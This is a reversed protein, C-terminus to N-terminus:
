ATKEIEALRMDIYEDVPQKTSDCERILRRYIELSNHFGKSFNGCIFYIILGSIVAFPLATKLSEGHVIKEAVACTYLAVYFIDACIVTINLKSEDKRLKELFEAATMGKKQSLRDFKRKWERLMVSEAKKDGLERYYNDKLIQKRRDRITGYNRYRWGSRVTYYVAIYVGSVIAAPLSPVNMVLSVRGQFIVTSILIVFFSVLAITNWANPRLKKSRFMLPVAVFSCLLNFVIGVGIGFLFPALNMVTGTLPQETMILSLTEAIFIVLACSCVTRPLQKLRDAATYDGYIDRCFRETDSGAVEKVDRGETQATLLVDYLETLRDTLVDPSINKMTGYVRVASFVERYGGNLQEEMLQFEM